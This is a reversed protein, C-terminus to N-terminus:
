EGADSRKALEAAWASLSNDRAGMVLVVDGKGAESRVLEAAAARDALYRYDKGGRQKWDAAVESSQPKFSSTGGAYYVPLLGFIDNDHLNQELAQFLEERMFGLPAFGHPQFLLILRRGALERGANLCSIIKEVNHAYDDFFRVGKRSTGAPDFRRWVGHFKELAALAEETGIGLEQLEAYLALANLAQHRGPGPLRIDRGTGRIRAYAAGDTVGYNELHYLPHGDVTDPGDPEGTFLLIKVRGPLACQAIIERYAELEIVAFERINNLFAGFVRALEEKPYHDTGINLILASDAGYNLLSKDSEDAELVFYEGGSPRFNGAADSKRFANVLGGALVGPDRGAQFLAEALWASVSTKGCTGTVAVTHRCHLAAVEASLAASRHFRPLDGAAKFDPNDEEIATSYVLGGPLDPAAFRSGDQPFLEIGQARLAQFIQANEPKDLARDSGTVRWGLSRALQALGSMGIGGIGVFHLSEPFKGTM